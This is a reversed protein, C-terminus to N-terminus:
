LSGKVENTWGDAGECRQSTDAGAKKARHGCGFRCVRREILKLKAGSLDSRAVGL